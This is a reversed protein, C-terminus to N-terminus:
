EARLAPATATRSASRGPLVAALNAVLVTGLAVLVLAGGPVTPAPVAYIQRAFLIWLWRGVAIGLPVGVVIGAAAAVSAQWAVAGALQRRTFGLTKLVALDRRRRRVSAFLTLALAAFAGAALGGALLDPAAGMLRYNAIQAPHQVGLVNLTVGQCPSNAPAAALTKTVATAARQLSAHGAAATVGSRLRILAMAPPGYCSVAMPGLLQASALAGTGLSTHLGQSLGATPMTATGVIVLHARVFTGVSATVTGGLRQHLQALTAPGLVIQDRGDVPHGSLIPPAVTARPRGFLLPVAQGDLNASAFWVLTWAAVDPDSRMQSALQPQPLTAYGGDASIGYSWNWGYLAPHSVLTALSSGFTLTAVVMLVALVTGSIASRAPVTARGRGPDFAFEIGAVAAAPLGSAAALRAPGSGAALRAPGSGAALRASTVPGPRRTARRGLLIGVAALIGVLGLFGLSLVTWDPAIGPSPYVLRVPGIPGIPSLAVAVGVALLSGAVVAGLIGTLSDAATMAPGAGLARLVQADGSAVRILRAIAQAAIILAAIGAILAFVALAIWDPEIVSQAQAESVAAVHYLATATRGLQGNIESEVTATDRAGHDLQLGYWSIGSGTGARLLERSLAPTLLLLGQQRDIDDQVIENNFEVLGTLRARVSLVPRVRATGFGPSESQANTYFGLPVTEGVRLGLLRAAETNMVFQGPRRPDALHGQTVTVRDQTFYLGDVSGLVEVRFSNILATGAPAGDPRLLSSIPEFASEVRRVDRLHRVTAAFAPMGSYSAQGVANYQVILDSPNTSALFVPFSSETRRAAAASGLAVGGTLGILLVLALYGGWRRGLTARFRYWAVPLVRGSEM